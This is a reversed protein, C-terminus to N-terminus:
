GRTKACLERTVRLKQKTTTTALDPASASASAVVVVVGVVEHVMGGIWCSPNETGDAGYGEETVAEGSCAEHPAKRKSNDSNEIAIDISAAKRRQNGWCQVAEGPGVVM